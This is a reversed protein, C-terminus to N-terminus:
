ASANERAELVACLHELCLATGALITVAWSWRGAVPVEGPGPLGASGLQELCRGCALGHM